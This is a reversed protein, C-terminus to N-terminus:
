TRGGSRVSRASLSSLSSPAYSGKVWRKTTASLEPGTRVGEAGGASILKARRSLTPNASGKSVTTFNPSKLLNM